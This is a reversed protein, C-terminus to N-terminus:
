RGTSAARYDTSPSICTRLWANGVQEYPDGARYVCPRRTLDPLGTSANHRARGPTEDLEVVREVFAAESPLTASSRGEQGGAAFRSMEQIARPRCVSWGCLRASGKCSGTRVAAHPKSRVSRAKRRSPPVNSSSSSCARAVIVRIALELDLRYADAQHPRHQVGIVISRM